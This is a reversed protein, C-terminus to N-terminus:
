PGTEELYRQLERTRTEARSQMCGLMAMGAMSGDGYWTRVAKCDADRFRIWHRQADVLTTKVDARRTNKAGTGDLKALVRRYTDNLAQEAAKQTQAACASMDATTMAKACDTAAHAPGSLLLVALLALRRSIM